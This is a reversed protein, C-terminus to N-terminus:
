IAQGGHRNEWKISTQEHGIISTREFKDFKPEQSIKEELADMKTAQQNNCRRTLPSLLLTTM